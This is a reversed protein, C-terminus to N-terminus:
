AVERWGEPPESDAIGGPPGSVSGGSPGGGGSRDTRDTRGSPTETNKAPTSIGLRPNILYTTATRGATVKKIEYLWDLDCLLDVAGKADEPTSLGAWGNRYVDRLAFGDKLESAMIKKALARAASVDPHIAQSYIRNAHSELYTGWRIAKRLAMIGVPGRGGDALHIILALAPILKRYKALHSEIAPHLDGSRVKAELGARWLDFQQQAEDDFRLFPIGDPDFRDYDAGCLVPDLGDLGKFIAYARDRAGSDPWRDINVWDKSIDPWVALQFRQILGDDGAGQRAAGRLYQGLPGPQIGGILSAIAAEIDITGRAIRDYTYRGNGNWAELYFARAGEQGEKDLSKLLGILEDRYVLVGRPNQNLIEGLKEVTSDNVLYRRRVPEAEGEKVAERAVDMAREENEEDLADRIEREVQKQRAKAVLEAAERDTQEEEFKKKAEIELAKLPKLPEQIAPTKMVGPRGIAAGWLNPVVLWDDQRKPRIGIKRGIVASLAVMVAVAPFDIPCQVRDAIDVIWPRLAEPLLDSDFPLVPPLAEPLPQPEPWSDPGGGRPASVSGGSAGGGGSNAGGSRCWDADQALSNLGLEQAAAKVAAKVDDGHEYYCFVSFSDRAHKGHLPDDTSHHYSRGTDGFVVVSGLSEGGPRTYRDKHPTYGARLLMDRIPVRRNWEAIVGTGAQAARLPKPKAKKAREIEQRTFPAEDLNRAAAILLRVQDMPRRPIDAFDGAIAEYTRGNPHTSGPLLAYGGEGRTEIGIRRGTDESDDPVWALSDNRGPDDCRVAVQMGEGTRQTPLGDALPGVAARWVEYMTMEDFDIILLNGSATGCVVALGTIAAHACWARVTAEDAARVRFPKWTAKGTEPDIPLVPFLPHKNEGIPIISLGGALYRVALDLLVAASM